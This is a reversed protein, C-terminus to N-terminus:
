LPVEECCDLNYLCFFVLIQLPFCWGVWFPVSQIVASGKDAVTFALFVCKLGLFIVVLNSDGASAVQIFLTGMPEQIQLSVKPYTQKPLNWFKETRLHLLYLSAPPIHWQLLSQSNIVMGCKRNEGNGTHSPFNQTWGAEQGEQGAKGAIISM